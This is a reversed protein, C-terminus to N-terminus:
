ECSRDVNGGASPRRWASIRSHRCWYLCRRGRRSAPRFSGRWGRAEADLQELAFAAYARNQASRRESDNAPNPSTTM